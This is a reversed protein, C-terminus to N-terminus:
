TWGGGSEKEARWSMGTPAMLGALACFKGAPCLQCETISRLGRRSGYTGVPCRHLTAVATGLPCFYGQPCPYLHFDQIPGASSDCYYGAPCQGSPAQLGAEKCYFSRPCVQCASPMTQEPLSSFTGVPCPTPRHSAAASSVPLCCPRALPVGCYSRLAPGVMTNVILHAEALMGSARSGQGEIVCLSGLGESTAPIVEDPSMGSLIRTHCPWQSRNMGFLEFWLSCGLHINVMGRQLVGQSNAPGHM